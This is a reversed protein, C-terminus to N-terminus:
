RRYPMLQQVSNMAYQQTQPAAQYSVAVKVQEAGQIVGSQGVTIACANYRRCDFEKWEKPMANAAAVVKSLYKANNSPTKSHYNGVSKWYNAPTLIPASRSLDVEAKKILYAGISVNLCGNNKLQEFTIGYPALTPLHISNIQMPGIDVTGNTNKSVEGVRGSEVKLISLIVLPPVLYKNSAAVVCEATVPSLIPPQIYDM